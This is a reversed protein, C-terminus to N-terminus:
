PSMVSAICRAFAAPNDYFLFHDADVIEIVQCDSARLRPLYSLHRNAAGYVFYRPLPLALFRDILNGNASDEVLQFSYDYYAQPDAEELVALHNRFGTGPRARLDTKIRPLVDAVFHSYTHPTVLSSFLCDEPALNGEVNM